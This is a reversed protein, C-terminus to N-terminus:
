PGQGRSRSGKWLILQGSQTGLYDSGLLFRHACTCWMHQVGGAKQSSVYGVNLHEWVGTLNFRKFNGKTYTLVPLDLTLLKLSGRRIRDNEERLSPRGSVHLSRFNALAM